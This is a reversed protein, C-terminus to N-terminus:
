VQDIPKNENNENEDTKISLTALLATLFAFIALLSEVTFVSSKMRELHDMGEAHGIAKDGFLYGIPIAWLTYIIKLINEKLIKKKEALDKDKLLKKNFEDEGGIDEIDSEIESKLNQIDAVISELSEEERSRINELIRNKFSGDIMIM